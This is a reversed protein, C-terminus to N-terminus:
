REILFRICIFNLFFIRNAWKYTYILYIVFDELLKDLQKEIEEKHKHPTRYNKNDGRRKLM